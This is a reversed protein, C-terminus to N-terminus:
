SNRIRKLSDISEHLYYDDSPTREVISWACDKLERIEENIKEIQETLQAISAAKEETKTVIDNIRLNRIKGSVELAVQKKIETCCETMLKGFDSQSTEARPTWMSAIDIDADVDCTMVSKWELMHQRSKRIAEIPTKCVIDCMFVFPIMVVYKHGGTKTRPIPRCLRVYLGYDEGRWEVNMSLPLANDRHKLVFSSMEYEGMEYICGALEGEIEEYETHTPVEALLAAEEQLRQRKQM